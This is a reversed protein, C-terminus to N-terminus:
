GTYKEYQEYESSHYKSLHLKLGKITQHKPQPSGLSVTKSCSKCIAKSPHLVINKEYYEWIPNVKPM